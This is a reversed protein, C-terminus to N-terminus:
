YPSSAGDTGRKQLDLLNELTKLQKTDSLNFPATNIDMDEGFEDEGIFTLMYSNKSPDYMLNYSKVTAKTNAMEITRNIFGDLFSNMQNEYDKRKQMLRAMKMKANYKKKLAQPSNDKELKEIQEKLEPIEAEIKVREENGSILPQYNALPATPKTTKSSGTSGTKTREGLQLTALDKYKENTSRQNVPIFKDLAQQNMEENFIRIQEESGTWVDQHGLGEWYGSAVSPDNTLNNFPNLININEVIAPFNYLSQTTQTVKKMDLDPRNIRTDTISIKGNGQMDGLMNTIATEQLKSPDQITQVFETGMEMADNWENINIRNGEGDTMIPTNTKEDLVINYGKPNNWLGKNFQLASLDNNSNTQIAGVKGPEIDLANGYKQNVDNSYSVFKTYSNLNAELQSLAQTGIDVPIRGKNMGAVIDSYQSIMPALFDSKVRANFEDSSSLQGAETIGKWLELNKNISTERAQRQIQKNQAERQAELQNRKQMEALGGDLGSTSATDKYKWAM